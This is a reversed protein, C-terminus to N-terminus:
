GLGLGLGLGASYNPFLAFSFFLALPYLSFVFFIFLMCCLLSVHRCFTDLHTVVPCGFVRRNGRRPEACAEIRRRGVVHVCVRVARLCMLIAVVSFWTYRHAYTCAELSPLFNALLCSAAPRPRLQLRRTVKEALEMQICSHLMSSLSLSLCLVCAPHEFLALSFSLLFFTWFFSLLLSVLRPLCVFLLVTRTRSTM